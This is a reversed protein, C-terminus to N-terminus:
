VFDEDRKFYNKEASIFKKFFSHEDPQDSVDSNSEDSFSNRQKRWKSFFQQIRDTERCKLNPL